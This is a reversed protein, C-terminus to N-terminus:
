FVLFLNKLVKLIKKDLIAYIDVTSFNLHSECWVGTNYCYGNNTRLETYLLSHCGNGLINMLLEFVGFTQSNEIYHDKSSIGSYSYMLYAQDKTIHSFNYDTFDFGEFNYEKLNQLSPPTDYKNIESKFIKDINCADVEGSVAFIFDTFHKGKYAVVDEYKMNKISEETGGIEHALNGIHGLKSQMYFHIYPDNKRTKIEELIVTKEKEFDDITFAFDYFLELLLGVSTQFNEFNKNITTTIYFVVNDFGTYANSDGLSSMMLNIDTASKTKTRKFFLHEIFHSIGYNKEDEEFFSGHNVILRINVMGNSKYYHEVMLGNGIYLTPKLGEEIM